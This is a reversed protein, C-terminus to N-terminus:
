NEYLYRNNLVMCGGIFRRWVLDDIKYFHLIISINM